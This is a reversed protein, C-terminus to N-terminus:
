EKSTDGTTKDQKTPSESVPKSGLLEKMSVSVNASLDLYKPM